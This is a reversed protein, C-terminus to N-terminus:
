CKGRSCLQVHQGGHKSRKQETTLTRPQKEVILTKKNLHRNKYTCLLVQAQHIKYVVINKCYVFYTPTCM